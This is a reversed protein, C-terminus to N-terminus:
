VVSSTFDEVVAGCAFFKDSVYEHADNVVLFQMMHNGIFDM